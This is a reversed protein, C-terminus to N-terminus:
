VFRLTWLLSFVGSEMPKLGLRLLTRWTGLWYDRLLIDLCLLSISVLICQGAAGEAQAGSLDM